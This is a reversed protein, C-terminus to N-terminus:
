PRFAQTPPKWDLGLVVTVDVYRSNDPRSEVAGTGLVRAIRASWDDHGTNTLIQTKEQPKKVRGSEYEVVDFGHDRLVTTARKALGNVMSANVVLVRVRVGKPARALTDPQEAFATAISDTSGDRGSWWRVGTTGLAAVIVLAVVFRLARARRSPTPTTDFGLPTLPSTM